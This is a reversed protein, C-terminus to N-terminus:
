RQSGDLPREAEAAVETADAHVRAMFRPHEGEFAVVVAEGNLVLRLFVGEISVRHAWEMFQEIEEETAFGCPRLRLAALLVAFQANDFVGM